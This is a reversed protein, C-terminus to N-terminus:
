RDRPAQRDTAAVRHEDIPTADMLFGRDLAELDEEVSAGDGRHAPSHRQGLAGLAVAVPPSDDLHLRDVHGPEGPDLQAGLEGVSPDCGSPEGAEVQERLRLHRLRIANGFGLGGLAPERVGALSRDRDAHGGPFGGPVQELPLDLRDACCVWSSQIQKILSSAGGSATLPDPVHDPVVGAEAEGAGCLAEAEIAVELARQPHHGVVRAEDGEAVLVVAPM